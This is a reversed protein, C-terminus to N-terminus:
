SLLSALGWVAAITGLAIMVISRAMPPRNLDGSEHEKPPRVLALVTGVALAGGIALVLWALLDEGLFM